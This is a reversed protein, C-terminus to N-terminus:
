DDWCDNYLDIYSIPTDPIPNERLSTSNLDRHVIGEEHLYSVASALQYALSFKDNWTLEYFKRKLYQQLTGGDAYEMVVWYKQLQEDENDQYPNSRRNSHVSNNPSPTSSM